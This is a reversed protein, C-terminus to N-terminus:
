LSKEIVGRIESATMSNHRGDYTGPDGNWLSGKAVFLVKGSLWRVALRAEGPLPIAIGNADIDLFGRDWVERNEYDGDALEVVEESLRPRERDTDYLGSPALHDLELLFFSQGPSDILELTLKAPKMIYVSRKSVDFDLCAKETSRAVSLFDRGGGSPLHAHNRNEGMFPSLTSIMETPSQWQLKDVKGSGAVSKVAEDWRARCEEHFEVQAM